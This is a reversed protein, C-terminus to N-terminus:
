PTPVPSPVEIQGTPLAAPIHPEPVWGPSDSGALQFALAVIKATQARTANNWPRFYPRNQADCPEGSGGCNYGTMITRNALREVYVWFHSAEQGTWPIDAFHQQTNPITEFFGAANSIIKAIQARKVSQYPRYYPRNQSDCPENPDQGCPYGNIYGRTALREVFQYFTNDIPVDAFTQLYHTETWGAAQSAIKALQGRSVQNYLRFYPYRSPCVCPEDTNGCGYGNIIGLTGLARVYTYFVNGTPVDQFKGPVPTPAAVCESNTLALDGIIMDGTSSSPENFKIAVDTIVALDLPVTQFASIPIRVTNMVQRPVPYIPIYSPMTPPNSQPWTGPPFYLPNPKPSQYYDTVRAWAQRGSTDALYVRLDKAQPRPNRSNQFNVAARFQIAEYKTFDRFDSTQPITNSLNANTSSWQLRLAGALVDRHVLNDNEVALHPQRPDFRPEITPNPIYPVDLCWYPPDNNEGCLEYRDLSTPIVSGGANNSALDSTRAFANIDRRKNVDGWGPMYSIYTTANAQQVHDPPIADGTLHRYFQYQNAANHSLYSHFFATMYALGAARQQVETLRAATNCHEDNIRIPDVNWDDCPFGIQNCPIPTRGPTPTSISPSWYTNFFNHNSKLMLHAHAAAYSQGSSAGDFYHIGSLGVVDGDCYPLMVDIPVDAQELSFANWDTPALPLLSKIGFPSGLDRNYLFYKIIGEGGRSHGLLGVNALDVRDVFRYCHGQEPYCATGAEWRAWNSLHAHILEARAQAGSDNELNDSANIGNSSISIVLFGYSALRYGIYDYGQYNWIPNPYDPPCYGPTNLWANVTNWPSTNYCTVHRGHLIVVVPMNSLIPEGIANAPWYARGKGEVTQKPMSPLPINGLNYDHQGYTLYPGNFSPDADAAPGGSPVQAIALGHANNIFLIVFLGVLLASLRM